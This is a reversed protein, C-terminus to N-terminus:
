HGRSYLGLALALATDLRKLKDPQLSGIREDLWAKDITLVNDANVCCSRPLGDRLGLSVETELGRLRTSIEVVTIRTRVAYAVDRSV